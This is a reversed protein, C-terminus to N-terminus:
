ATAFETLARLDPHRFGLVIDDNPVGAALLDTAIGEETGDEEIWIKGEHLRAYLTASRIRRTDLWGTRYVMYRNASEDFVTHVEIETQDTENFLDAYKQLIEQVLKKYRNLKDM